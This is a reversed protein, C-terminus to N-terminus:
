AGLLASMAGIPTVTGDVRSARRLRSNEAALPQKELGLAERLCPYSNPRRNNLLRRLADAITNM